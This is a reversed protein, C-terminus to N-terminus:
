SIFQNLWFKIISTFRYKVIRKHCSDIKHFSCGHSGYCGDRGKVKIAESNRLVRGVLILVGSRRCARWIIYLACNIVRWRRYQKRHILWKWEVSSFLYKHSAVTWTGRSSPNLSLIRLIIIEYIIYQDGEQQLGEYLMENGTYVNYRWTFCRMLYHVSPVYSSDVLAALHQNSISLWQFVQDENSTLPTFPLVPM